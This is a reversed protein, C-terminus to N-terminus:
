QQVEPLVKMSIIRVDEKPRDRGDTEVKEIRDIVDMGEIVEGFVTYAGDLHPAGGQNSYDSKMVDTLAVQERATQAETERILSDQLAQLGATDRNRRMTMIEEKHELTLRNFIEQMKQNKLQRELQSLQAAEVPRGTVVYFQSGSSRREPNVNDGQRAAALAYRKHYHRPVDIEAEITYGPGGSGLSAGPAATKSDPDGAQVMFDKIVRHFLTGDYYGERALKLFNAQHAPTDGYLLVVFSGATTNVEVRADEHRVTDNSNNDTMATKNIIQEQRTTDSEAPSAAEASAAGGSCSSIAVGLLGLVLLSRFFKM